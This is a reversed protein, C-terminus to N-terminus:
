LGDIQTLNWITLPPLPSAAFIVGSTLATM